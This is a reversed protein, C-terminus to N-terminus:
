AFESTTPVLQKTRAKNEFGLNNLREEELLWPWNVKDKCISFTLCPSILPGRQSDFVMYQMVDSVDSCFRRWGLATKNERIKM